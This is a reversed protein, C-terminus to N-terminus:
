CANYYDAKFTSVYSGDVSRIAYDGVVLNSPWLVASEFTEQSINRLTDICQEPFPMFDVVDMYLDMAYDEVTDISDFNLECGGDDLQHELVYGSDFVRFTYGDDTKDYAVYVVLIGIAPSLVYKFKDIIQPTLKDLLPNLEKPYVRDGKAYILYEKNGIVYDIEDKSDKWFIIRFRNEPNERIRLESVPPIDIEGAENLFYHADDDIDMDQFQSINSLKTINNITDFNPIKM